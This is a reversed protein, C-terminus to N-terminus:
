MNESEMESLLENTNRIGKRKERKNRERRDGIKRRKRKESKKKGPLGVSITISYNNM